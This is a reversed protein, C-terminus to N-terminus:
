TSELERRRVGSGHRRSQSRVVFPKGYLPASENIVDARNSSGGAPERGRDRVGCCTHPIRVAEEGFRNMEFPNPLDIKIAPVQAALGNM